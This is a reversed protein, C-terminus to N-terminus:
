ILLWSGAEISWDVSHITIGALRQCWHGVRVRARLWLLIIPLYWTIVPCWFVDLVAALPMQWVIRPALYADHPRHPARWSGPLESFAFQLYLTVVLAQLDDRCIDHLEIALIHIAVYSHRPDVDWFRAIPISQGEGVHGRNSFISGPLVQLPVYLGISVRTAPHLVLQLPHM